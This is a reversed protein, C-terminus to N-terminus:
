SAKKKQREKHLWTRCSKFFYPALIFVRNLQGLISHLLLFHLIKLM